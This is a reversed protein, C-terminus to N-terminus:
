RDHQHLARQNRGQDRGCARAGHQVGDRHSRRKADQLKGRRRRSPRAPLPGEGRSAATGTRIKTNNDIILRLHDQDRTARTRRLIREFFDLTAAPGLGGIVGVTKTDGAHSCCTRIPLCRRRAARTCSCCRTRRGFHNRRILGILGAAAKGTYVPDLLVGDKQAFLKVAEVMEDTPISYGSRGMRDLAVVSEREPVPLGAFRAAEVALKHVNDEQEARPQSYM